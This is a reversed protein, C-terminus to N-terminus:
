QTRCGGGGGGGYHNGSKNSGCGHLLVFRQVKRGFRGALTRIIIEWKSPVNSGCRFDLLLIISFWM